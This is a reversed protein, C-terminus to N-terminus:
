CGIRRLGAKALAFAGCAVFGLSIAALLPHGLPQEKLAELAGGLGRAHSANAEWGALATLGGVALLAVGQAADGLRGVIGAVRAKAGDCDLDETFHGTAARWLNVVGTVAVGAGIVLLVLGGGPLGLTYRVMNKLGAEDDFAEASGVVILLHFVALGLALDVIGNGAKGARRVLAETTTGVRDADMAAQLFRWGALALLGFGTCTLLVVGLPGQPWTTLAGIPGEAHVSPALAAAMGVVGVSLYVASRAVYGFRALGEIWRALPRVWGAARRSAPLLMHALRHPGPATM